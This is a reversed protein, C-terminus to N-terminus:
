NDLTNSGRKGAERMFEAGGANHESRGPTLDPRSERVVAAATLGAGGM